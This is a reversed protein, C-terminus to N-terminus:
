GNYFTGQEYSEFAIDFQEDLLLSWIYAIEDIINILKKAEEDKLLNNRRIMGHPHCGWVRGLAVIGAMDNVLDKPLMDEKCLPAVAKLCAVIDHYNREIHDMDKYPRLKGLFGNTWRPDDIRPDRASHFSLRELATPIDYQIIM